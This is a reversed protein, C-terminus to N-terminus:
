RGFSIKVKCFSIKMNQIFNKDQAPPVIYSKDVMSFGVANKDMDIGVIKIKREKILKLSKITGPAGPGGIGTILVTAQKM